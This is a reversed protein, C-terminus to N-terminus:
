KGGEIKRAAEIALEVFQAAVRVSADKPAHSDDKRAELWDQHAIEAITRVIDVPSLHANPKYESAPILVYERCEGAPINFLSGNDLEALIDGGGKRPSDWVGDEYRPGAKWACCDGNKDASVWVTVRETGM